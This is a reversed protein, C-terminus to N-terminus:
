FDGIQFRVLRRLCCALFKERCIEGDDDTWVVWVSEGDEDYGDFALIPGGSALVLSNSENVKVLEDLRFVGQPMM